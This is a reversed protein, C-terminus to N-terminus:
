KLHQSPSSQPLERGHMERIAFFYVYRKVLIHWQSINFGSLFFNKLTKGYIQALGAKKFSVVDSHPLLPLM